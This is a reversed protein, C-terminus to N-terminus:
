EEAAAAGPQERPDLARQAREAAALRAELARRDAADDEGPQRPHSVLEGASPDGEPRAVDGGVPDKAARVRHGEQDARERDAGAAIQDAHVSSTAAADERRERAVAGEEPLDDGLQDPPAPRAHQREEARGAKEAGAVTERDGAHEEDGLLAAVEGHRRDAEDRDRDALDQHAVLRDGARWDVATSVVLKSLADRSRLRARM